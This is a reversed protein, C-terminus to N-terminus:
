TGVAPLGIDNLSVILHGYDQVTDSAGSLNLSTEYANLWIGNFGGTFTGFKPGLGFNFQDYILTWSTADQNAAWLRFINGASGNYTNGKIQAKFTIWQNAVFPFCGPSYAGGNYLCYRNLNTGSGNDQDTIQIDGITSNFSQGFPPFGSGDQRYAQPTNKWNVNQCIIEHPVNSQSQNQPDVPSYCAADFFKFGASNRAVLRSTALKVRWSVFFQTANMGQANTTWAGGLTATGPFGGPNMSTFWAAGNAGSSAPSAIRMATGIRADTTVQSVLSKWYAAGPGGAGVDNAGFVHTTQNFDNALSSFNTAYIVGAAGSRAAWDAAAAAANDATLIHGSTSAVAGAGDYVYRKNASDYTVGTPLAVANKTITLPLSNPDTAYSGISINSASGQTFSITPVTTWVPVGSSQTTGVAATSQSSENLAVDRVSVRYSYATNAALGTDSYSTGTVTTRLVGDRYIRYDQTGTVFENAVGAVDVSANWTLNVQSTSVGTASAGTPTPPASADAVYTHFNITTDTHSFPDSARITASFVQGAVTPTGQLRNTSLTVGTPLSGGVLSFTIPNLDADTCYSALLLLYSNGVILTQAPVTQWAPPVNSLTTVQIASSILTSNGAADFGQVQFNYPTSPNLGTVDYTTLTTTPVLPVGNQYVTYGVIPGLGLVQPGLTGVVRM